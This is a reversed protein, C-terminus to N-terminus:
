SQGGTLAPPAADASAQAARLDVWSSWFLAVQSWSGNGSVQALAARAGAFDGSRALAIGLRAATRDKDPTGKELAARYFPVAEAFQAGALLKDGDQEAKAGSSASAAKGPLPKISALFTVARPKVTKMLPAVVPDTAQLKGESIGADLISKAEAPYGQTAALAAYGQYDRESALAATAAQLRYLDLQAEKDPRANEMYITLASRWVPPSVPAGALRASNYAALSAWDRRAIAITAARDYWSPPVAQGSQKQQAIADDLLKGAENFKRQRTYCESLLLAVKPDTVGLERARGLYLVANDIAGTQYSLFGAIHNLRGMQAQPAGGSEIIDAIAKRQAVVDDRKVALEMSLSAKLYKEFANTANLAAIQGGAGTVDGSKLSAQAQQVGSRFSASASLGSPPEQKAAAQGVIALGALMVAGGIPARWMKKM